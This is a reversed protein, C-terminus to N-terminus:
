TGEAFLDGVIAERVERLEEIFADLAALAAEKTPAEDVIMWDDCQHPLSVSWRPEPHFTYHGDVIPGGWWGNSRWARASHRTTEQTYESRYQTM